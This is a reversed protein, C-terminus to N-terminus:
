CCVVGSMMYKKGCQVEDRASSPSNLWLLTTKRIISELHLAPHCFKRTLSIVPPHSNGILFSVVIYGRRKWGFIKCKIAMIM